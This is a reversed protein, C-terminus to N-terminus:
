KNNVISYGGDFTSTSKKYGNDECYKVLEDQTNGYAIVCFGSDNSMISGFPDNYYYEARFKYMSVINELDKSILINPLKTLIEDINAM